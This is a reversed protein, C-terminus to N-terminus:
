LSVKKAPPTSPLFGSDNIISGQTMADQCEMQTLSVGAELSRGSALAPKAVQHSQGITMKKGIRESKESEKGKYSSDNQGKVKDQVQNYQNEIGFGFQNGEDAVDNLNEDGFIADMVDFNDSTVRRSLNTTSHSVSSHENGRLAPGRSDEHTDGQRAIPQRGYDDVEMDMFDLGLDDPPAPVHSESAVQLSDTDKSRANSDLGTNQIGKNSHTFQSGTPFDFDPNTTHTRSPKSPTQNDRKNTNRTVTNTKKKHSTRDERRTVTRTDCVTDNLETLDLDNRSMASNTGLHNGFGNRTPARSQTTPATTSANISAQVTSPQQSPSTADLLTALVFDARYENGNEISFVVPRYFTHM